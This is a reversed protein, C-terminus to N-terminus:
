FKRQRRLKEDEKPAGIQSVKYGVYEKEAFFILGKEREQDKASTRSDQKLSMPMPM